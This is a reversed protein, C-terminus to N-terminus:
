IGGGDGYYDPNYLRNLEYEEKAKQYAAQYMDAPNIAHLPSMTPSQIMSFNVGDIPQPSGSLFAKMRNEHM